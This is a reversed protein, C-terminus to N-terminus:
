SNRVIRREKYQLDRQLNEMGSKRAETKTGAARVRSTDIELRLQTSVGKSVGKITECACQAPWPTRDEVRLLYSWRHNVSVNIATLRKIPVVSFFLYMVM